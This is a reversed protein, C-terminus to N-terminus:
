KFKFRKCPVEYNNFSLNNNHLNNNNDSNQIPVSNIQNPSQVSYININFNNVHTHIPTQINENNFFNISYERSNNFSSNRVSGNQFNILVNDLFNDIGRSTLKNINSNQPDPFLFKINHDNDNYDVNNFLNRNCELNQSQINGSNLNHSYNSLFKGNEKIYNKDIENFCDIQSRLRKMRYINVNESKPLNNERSFSTRKPKVETQLMKEQNKIRTASYDFSHKEKGSYKNEFEEESMNQLSDIAKKVVYNINFDAEIKTRCVACEFKNKKVCEICFSHGCKTTIPDKLIDLCIPCTFLEELLSKIKKSYM